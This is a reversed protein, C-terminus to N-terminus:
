SSLGVEVWGELFHEFIALLSDRRSGFIVVMVPRTRRSVRLGKHLTWGDSLLSPSSERHSCADILLHASETSTCWYGARNENGKNENFEPNSFSKKETGGSDEMIKAAM